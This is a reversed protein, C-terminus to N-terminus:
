TRPCITLPFRVKAPWRLERLGVAFPKERRLAAIFQCTTQRLEKAPAYGRAAIPPRHRIAFVQHVPLLSQRQTRRRLAELWQRVGRYVPQNVLSAQKKRPRSLLLGPRFEFYGDVLTRDARASTIAGLRTSAGPVNLSADTSENNSRALEINGRGPFDTGPHPGQPKTQRYLCHHGLQNKFSANSDAFAILPTDVGQWRPVLPLYAAALQGHFNTIADLTGLSKWAALFRRIRPVYQHRDLQCVANISVALHCPQVLKATPNAGTITWMFSSAAGASFFRNPHPKRLHGVLREVVQLKVPRPRLCGTTGLTPMRM